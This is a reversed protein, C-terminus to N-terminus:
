AHENEPLDGFKKKGKKKRLKKHQATQFNRVVGVCTPEIVVLRSSASVVCICCRMWVISHVYIEMSALPTERKRAGRACLVLSSYDDIWPYPCTYRILRDVLTLQLRGAAAAQPAPRHAARPAAQGHRVRRLQPLADQGLRRLDPLRLRRRVLPQVPVRGPRLRRV